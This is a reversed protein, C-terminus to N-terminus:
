WTPVAKKRNELMTKRDPFRGEPTLFGEKILKDRLTTTPQKTRKQKEPPYLTRSRLEAEFVSKEVRLASGVLLHPMSRMVKRAKTDGIGLLKQVDKPTLYEM